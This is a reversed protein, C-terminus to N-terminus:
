LMYGKCFGMGCGKESRVVVWVLVRLGLGVERRRVWLLLRRRRRVRLCMRRRGDRVFIIKERRKGIRRYRRFVRFGSRGYRKM